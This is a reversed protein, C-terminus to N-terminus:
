YDAFVFGLKDDKAVCTSLKRNNFEFYIIIFYMVQLFKLYIKCFM